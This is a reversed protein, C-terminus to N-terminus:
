TVRFTVLIPELLEETVVTGDEEEEAKTDEGEDERTEVMVVEEMGSDDVPKVVGEVEVAMTV